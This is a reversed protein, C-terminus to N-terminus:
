GSLAGDANPPPTHRPIRARITKGDPHLHTSLDALAHVVALGFGGHDGPDTQAPPRTSGDTVEIVLAPGDKTLTLIVPPRAHRTANTVLESVVLAGDDLLHRMGWIHVTEHLRTRAERVPQAQQDLRVVVPQVPSDLRVAVPHAQPLAGGAIRQALEEATAAEILRGEPGYSWWSGTARGRWVLRGPFRRAMERAKEKEEDETM